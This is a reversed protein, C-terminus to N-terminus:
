PFEGAYWFDAECSACKFLHKQIKPRRDGIGVGVGGGQYWVNETACKPCRKEITVQPKDKKHPEM